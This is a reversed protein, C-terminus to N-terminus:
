PHTATYQTPEFVLGIALGQTASKIESQGLLVTIAWRRCLTQVIALGLGSGTEANGMVRYFPEFVRQQEDMPIGCGSDEVWIILKHQDTIEDRVNIHGQPPTYRIANELLNKLITHLDAAQIQIQYQQTLGVGCDQNKTEALPWLEAYLDRLLPLLETRPGSETDTRTEQHQARAMSLLQSLLQHTRHIGAKIDTLLKEQEQPSLHPEEFRAIQLTLATIPTRLEHAAMGIFQKDHEIAAQLQIFLRNMSSVFPRIEIPVQSEDMPSLDYENRSALEISLKQTAKFLTRIFLATLLWLLPLLILFPWITSKASDAALRNRYATRQAVVVRKHHHTHIYLRWHRTATVFNHFGDGLAHLRLHAQNDEFMLNLYPSDLSQALVRPKPLQSASEPFNIDERNDQKLAPSNPDLLRAIQQLQADQLDQAEAFTTQFAIAGGLVAMITVLISMLIILRWQLSYKIREQFGAM